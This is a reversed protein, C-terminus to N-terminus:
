NKATNKTLELFRKIDEKIPITAQQWFTPKTLDVGLHKKALEEVTMRGTDRLLAIYRNAFSSGEEEARAYIGTSFLYGFTYPFNYFPVGTIYFHLKSAWFYPDYESLSDCYAERQANVMLDNLEKVGVMGSQRAQYFRTEFLFRAHINMFFAVGRKIKDDLLAIRNDDTTAHKIAADAVIQEAFTSATEAVNMRYRQSLPPLDGIVHQHYAHGLEHALTATNSPSGSFTMFIRSQRSLPFSTCFGGPRKAARDEAEVWRNQLAQEAFDAMAPNFTNFQEIIFEAAQDYSTHQDNAGVPANVDYCSLQKIGLLEAKRELYRVLPTKNQEVVDWMTELTQQSMRNVQLPERLVSKWGRHDYLYLRFGALHNLATACLEASEAWVSQLKHYVNHRVMRDSSSLLNSAQGVSLEKENFTISMRGVVTNYLESWAHYGDVALDTALAEESPSLRDKAQQRRENLPFAISQLEDSDLLWQWKDEPLQIIAEDLTLMATSLAAQLKKVTAQFSKAKEDKVDQSVLCTTFAATQRLGNMLEQAKNLIPTWARPDATPNAGFDKVLDRFSEIQRQLAVLFDSFVASDSGGPFINELDWTQNLPKEM